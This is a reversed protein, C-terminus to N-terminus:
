KEKGEQADCSCFRGRTFSFQAHFPGTIGCGHESGASISCISAAGRGRASVLSGKTIRSWPPASVRCPYFYTGQLLASRHRPSSLVVGDQSFYFRRQRRRFFSGAVYHAVVVRLRHQFVIKSSKPQLEPGACGGPAEPVPISICVLELSRAASVGAFLFM